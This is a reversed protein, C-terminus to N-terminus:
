ERPATAERQRRQHEEHRRQLRAYLAEDGGDLEHLWVAADARANSSLHKIKCEDDVVKKLWYRARAPDKPLGSAGRFFGDGLICAAHDSGLEAAQTVNVFGFANDQTGGKGLLLYYGFSAMGPPHRAAASREYWARAQM